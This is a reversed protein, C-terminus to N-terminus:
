HLCNIAWESLKSELANSDLNKFRYHRTAACPTKPRTFGLALAFEHPYTRGWQAIASYSRYGCMMATVSLGLITFLPHRKGKPNRRDTVKALMDLLHCFENKTM